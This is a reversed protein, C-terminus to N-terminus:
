AGAGARLVSGAWALWVITLIFSGFFLVPQTPAFLTLINVVGAVVALWGLSSALAGTSIIAWGAM